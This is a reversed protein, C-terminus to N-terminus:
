NTKRATIKYFAKILWSGMYQSLLYTIRYPLGAESYRFEYLAAEPFIKKWNKFENWKLYRNKIDRKARLIALCQSTNVHNDSFFKDILRLCETHQAIKTRINGNSTISYQNDKQYHYYSSPEHSISKCYFMTRILFVWDESCNIGDFFRINNDRIISLRVLYLWTTYLVYEKSLYAESPSKLDLMLSHDKDMGNIHEKFNGVVVDYNGNTARQYLKEIYDIDMWDDPDCHIVYEGGALSLGANRAAAQGSNSPMHHITVSGTRDPYAQMVDKLIDISADPTCDDVFIYEINDLTQAFLSEACKRIYREAKYVPIIISVKFGSM